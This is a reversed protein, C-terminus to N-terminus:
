LHQWVRFVEAQNTTDFSGGTCVPGVKGDGNGKCTGSTGGGSPCGSSDTGWNSEANALDGPLGQFSNKFNGVASIYHGADTMVTQLQSSLLMTRGVLVGAVMVGIIGLVISMELLSFGKNFQGHNFQDKM